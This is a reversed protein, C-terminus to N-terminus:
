EEYTIKPEFVGRQEAYWNMYDAAEENESHFRCKLGCYDAIKAVIILSLRDRKYDLGNEYVSDKIKPNWIEFGVDNYTDIDALNKVFPINNESM